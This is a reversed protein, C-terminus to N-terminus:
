RATMWRFLIIQFTRPFYYGVGDWPTPYSMMTGYEFTNQTIWNHISFRSGVPASTVPMIASHTATDHRCGFLHATEHTFTLDMDPTSIVCYSKGKGHDTMDSSEVKIPLYASGAVNENGPAQHASHIFVVLDSGAAKADTTLPEYGGDYSLRENTIKGKIAKITDGTSEPLNSTFSTIEFRACSGSQRHVANAFSVAAQICAEVSHYSETIGLGSWDDISAGELLDMVAPLGYGVSVDIWVMEPANAVALDNNFTIGSPIEVKYGSSILNSDGGCIECGGHETLEEIQTKSLENDQVTKIRFHGLNPILIVGAYAERDGIHSLVGISGPHGEFSGSVSFGNIKSGMRDDNELILRKTGFGPVQLEMVPKGGSRLEAVCRQLAVTDLHHDM